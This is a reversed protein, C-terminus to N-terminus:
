DWLLGFRRAQRVADRRSGVALKRYIHRLHSKVTNPSVSLEQAIDNLTLLTPLYRLVVAERATIPEHPVAPRIEGRRNRPPTVRHRPRDGVPPGGWSGTAWVSAIQTALAPHPALLDRHRELLATVPAERFPAVIGDPAAVTLAEALAIGVMGDHGQADASLAGVLWSEVRILPGINPWEQVPAVLSAARAPAASALYARASMIRAACGFLAYRDHSVQSLATLAHVPRGCARHLDAEALALWEQALRPLPEDAAHLYPRLVQDALGNDGRAVLLRARTAAVLVSGTPCDVISRNAPANGLLWRGWDFVASGLGSTSCEHRSSSGAEVAKAVVGDAAVGGVAALEVAGAPQGRVVALFALGTRAEEVIWTGVDDAREIATTLSRSAADLEGNALEVMGRTSWALAEIARARPVLGPIVEDLLGIVRAAPERWGNGPEARRAIVLEALALAVQVHANRGDQPRAAQRILAAYAAAAHADGRDAAAVALAAAVDHDDLADVIPLQVSGLLSRDPDLLLPGAFQTVLQATRQGDGAAAALRVATPADGHEAHWRSAALRLAVVEGAITLAAERDLFDRVPVRLRYWDRASGDVAAERVLLGDKRLQDLLRRADSRGTLEEALDPRVAPVQSIRVLLERAAPSQADYVETRLFEDM